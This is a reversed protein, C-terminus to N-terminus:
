AMLEAESRRACAACLGGDEEAVATCDLGDRHSRLTCHGVTRGVNGASRMALLLAALDCGTRHDVMGLGVNEAVAEVIEVAEVAEVAAAFDCSDIHHCTGCCRVLSCEVKSDGPTWPCCVEVLSACATM